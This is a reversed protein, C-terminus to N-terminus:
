RCRATQLPPRRHRSADVPGHVPCHKAHRIRRIAANFSPSNLRRRIISIASEPLGQPVSVTLHLEDILIYRPM